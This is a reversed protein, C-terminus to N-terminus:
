RRRGKKHKKKAKKEFKRRLFELEKHEREATKMKEQLERVTFAAMGTAREAMQLPFFPKQLDPAEDFAQEVGISFRNRVTTHYHQVVENFTLRAQRILPGFYAGYRKADIIQIGSTLFGGLMCQQLYDESPAVVPFCLLFRYFAEPKWAFKMREGPAAEIGNFVGSNSVFYAGGQRSGEKRFSYRGLTENILATLVEGEVRCQEESRYTGAEHRLRMLIQTYHEVESWDKAEFGKWERLQIVGVQFEGLKRIISAQWNHGTFIGAIYHGFNLCAGDARSQIYGDIFLNQRFDSMALAARLLEPSGEGHKKVFDRAWLAHEEVEDVIGALTIAPAGLKQLRVFLDITFKHNLCGKALLPIILSSDLVWVSGSLLSKQFVRFQPDLLLAHYAFYGQSLHWLYQKQLSNPRTLLETAYRIFFYRVDQGALSASLTKFSRFLDSADPIRVPQDHVIFNVIELGRRRFAEVLSMDLARSFANIQIEPIEPFERQLDLCAQGYFQDVLLQRQRKGEEVLERGRDTAVVRGEVEKAWGSDVLKRVLEQARDNSIGQWFSKAIPIARALDERTPVVGESTNLLMPLLTAMAADELFEASKGALQMQTFIFLSSAMETDERSKAPLQLTVSARPVIHGDYTSLIRRLQRHTGDLNEYPIVRINYKRFLDDTEHRDFGTGLMFVPNNPSSFYKAKELIYEIDPDRLGYGIICVRCLSFVAEIKQRFYEGLPASRLERYSAATLVLRESGLEGHLKAVFDRATTTIQKFDNPSNLLRTCFVGDRHLHNYLEDDYNTTLYGAFPWKSLYGYIDGHNVSPRLVSRIEAIMAEHGIDQEAREFLDSFKDQRLLKPYADLEEKGTTRKVADVVAHALQNWSPYGMECSPGSGVLAYCTGSNISDLLQEEILM